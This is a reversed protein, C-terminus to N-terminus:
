GGALAVLLRRRRLWIPLARSPRRVNAWARALDAMTYSILNWGGVQGAAGPGYLELVATELGRQGM